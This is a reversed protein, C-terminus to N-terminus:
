FVQFLCLMIATCQLQNFATDASLYKVHIRGFLCQKFYSPKSIYSLSSDQEILVYNTKNADCRWNCKVIICLFIHYSAEPSRVYLLCLLNVVLNRQSWVYDLWMWYDLGTFVPCYYWSQAAGCCEVMLSLWIAGVPCHTGPLVFGARYSLVMEAFASVLLM